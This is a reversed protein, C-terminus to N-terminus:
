RKPIHSAALALIEYSSPGIAMGNRDSLEIANTIAEEANAWENSDVYFAAVTELMHSKWLDDEASEVANKGFEIADKLNGAEHELQSLGDWAWSSIVSDPVNAAEILLQKSKASHGLLRADRAARMLWDAKDSPSSTSAIELAVELAAEYDQENNILVSHLLERGTKYAPHKRGHSSEVIALAQRLDKSGVTTQSVTTLVSLAFGLREREISRSRVLWGNFGLSLLLLSVAIVGITVKFSRTNRWKVRTAAHDPQSGSQMAPNSHATSDAVRVISELIATGFEGAGDGMVMRPETVSEEREEVDASEAAVWANLMGEWDLEGDSVSRVVREAKQCFRGVRSNVPDRIFEEHLEAYLRSDEPLRSFCFDRVLDDNM